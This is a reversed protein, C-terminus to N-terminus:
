EPGTVTEHDNYEAQFSFLIDIFCITQYLKLIEATLV